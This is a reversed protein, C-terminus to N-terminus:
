SVKEHGNGINPFIIPMRKNKRSRGWLNSGGYISPINLLAIGELSADQGLDISEGDCLIDIQEHLNRCSSQLSESTALEVYWLKNKIRSNFKEPFKERMVHFRHAISADVGISFYNNIIQYPPPECKESMRRSGSSEIKLHWRDMGILTSKEIQQLIKHLNENEYGGGWRLCRALDNGTGLPLIAVPPRGHPFPMKDMSDLVWGITGDGGCILINANPLDAFLSLGPEPGSKSLDYVQRPNLLYQFKQLIKIGQKGGSKPNVLVLLPRFNPGPSFATDFGLLVLLPINTLGGRRWEDLSVSGDKDHDLDNMLQRLVQELEITDWKQCRAVHMMQEIIADMESTDLLGNSDSDYIQFIVELKNEPTDAELLSLTCILPKLPIRPEQCSTQCPDAVGEEPIKDLQPGDHSTQNMTLKELRGGLSETFKTKVTFIAEEFLSARREKLNNM